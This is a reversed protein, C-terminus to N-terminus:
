VGPPNPNQGRDRPMFKLGDGDASPVFADGTGFGLEVVFGDTRQDTGNMYKKLVRYTRWDGDLLTANLVMDLGCKEGPNPIKPREPLAPQGIARLPM